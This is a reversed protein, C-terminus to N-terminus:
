DFRLRQMSASGDQRMTVIFLNDYEDDAISIDEDIGMARLLWPVTNSHGAVLAAGGPKVLQLAGLIELPQRPDIVQVDLGHRRAAPAATNMTREYPSAIALQLNVSRLMSDLTAARAVGPGSLPPDQNEPDIEKEAHRVIYVTVPSTPEARITEVVATARDNPVLLTLSYHAIRWAGAASRRLVGTGRCQGYKENDLLEDFWATAGGVEVHREAAVYTWGIGQEFYPKVFDEFEGRSWREGPDTGLFIADDTMCGFYADFDARSAADHFRDLVAAIDAADDTSRDALAFPVLLLLLAILTAWKRM